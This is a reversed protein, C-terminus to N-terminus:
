FSQPLWASTTVPQPESPFVGALKSQPLFSVALAQVKQAISGQELEGLLVGKYIVVLGFPGSDLM